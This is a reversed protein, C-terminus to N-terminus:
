VKVCNGCGICREPIVNAQGNQMRIAKAPCERICTYCTKCRDAITFVLPKKENFRIM